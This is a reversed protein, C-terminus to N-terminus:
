QSSSANSTSTPIPLEDEAENQQAEIEDVPEEDSIFDGLLNNAFLSASQSKSTEGEDSESEEETAEPKEFHQKKQEQLRRLARTSM